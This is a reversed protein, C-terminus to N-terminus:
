KKNKIFPYLDWKKNYVMQRMPWNQGWFVNIYREQKREREGEREGWCSTTANHGDTMSDCLFIWVDCVSVWERERELLDGDRQQWRNDHQWTETNNYQWRQNKDSNKYTSNYLAVKTSRQPTHTESQIHAKKPWNKRRTWRMSRLFRHFALTFAVGVCARSLRGGM